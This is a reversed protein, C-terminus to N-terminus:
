KKFVFIESSWPRKGTMAILNSFLGTFFAEVVIIIRAAPAIKPHKVRKQKEMMKNYESLISVYFSDFLLGKSSHYTFGHKECIHILSQRNFHYLHRPVDWAAWFPGYKASDLSDHMPVAIVLFGGPKLKNSLILLAESVDHMHELVHWLTIFDFKSNNNAVLEDIRAYVPLGKQQAQDRAGDHVEVGEGVFGRKQAAEMFAGTGCGVDLLRPKSGIFLKKLFAAKRRIMFRKVFLYVNGQFGRQHDTHSIYDPSDYYSSAENGFEPQPNTLLIGCGSCQEISFVEGSVLYDRCQQYATVLNSDRCFPCSSLTKM